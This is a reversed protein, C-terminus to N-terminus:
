PQVILVGSGALAGYHRSPKTGFGPYVFWLYRGPSLRKHPETNASTAPLEVRPARPWLDLIRKGDRWLVVNYYTAHAVPQWQLGRVGKEHNSAPSKAGKGSANRATRHAHQAHRRGPKTVSRTRSRDGASLTVTPRSSSHTTAASRPALPNFQSAPFSVDDAARASPSAGHRLVQALWVGNLTLSVAALTLFGVAGWGRRDARVITQREENPIRAGAADAAHVKAFLGPDPLERRAVAAFEPDVLVLEPSIDRPIPSM